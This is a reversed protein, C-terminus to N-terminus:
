RGYLPVDWPPYPDETIQRQYDDLNNTCNIMGRFYPTRVRLQRAILSLIQPPIPKRSHSVKTRIPPLNPLELIYFRHDRNDRNFGFKSQLCSEVERPRYTM